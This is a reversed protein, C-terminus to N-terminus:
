VYWLCLCLLLSVFICNILVVIIYSPSWKIGFRWMWLCQCLSVWFSSLIKKRIKFVLSLSAVYDQDDTEIQSEHPNLIISTSTLWQWPYGTSRGKAKLGKDAIKEKEGENKYANLLFRPNPFPHLYVCSTSLPSDVPLYHMLYYSVALFVDVDHSISGSALYTGNWLGFDHCRSCVFCLYWSRRPM